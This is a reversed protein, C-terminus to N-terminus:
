ETRKQEAQYGALLEELYQVQQDLTRIQNMNKASSYPIKSLRVIEAMICRIDQELLYYFHARDKEHKFVINRSDKKPDYSVAM